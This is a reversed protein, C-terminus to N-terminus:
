YYNCWAPQKRRLSREVDSIWDAIEQLRVQLEEFSIEANDAEEWLIELAYSVGKKPFFVYDHELSNFFGNEGSKLCEYTSFSSFEWGYITRKFFYNDYHGWRNTYIKIKIEKNLSLDGNKKNLDVEKGNIVNYLDELAHYHEYYEEIKEEPICQRNIMMQETYIPLYKWHLKEAMKIGNKMLEEYKNRDIKGSFVVKKLEKYNEIFENELNENKNEEHKNIWSNVRNKTEENIKYKKEQTIFFEDLYIKRDFEKLFIKSNIEEESFLYDVNKIPDDLYKVLGILLNREKAASVHFYDKLIEEKNLNGNYLVEKLNGPIIEELKNVISM